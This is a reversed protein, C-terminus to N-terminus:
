ISERYETFCWAIHKCLESDTDPSFLYVENETSIVTKVEKLQQKVDRTRCEMYKKLVSNNVEFFLVPKKNSTQNFSNSNIDIGVMNILFNRNEYQNEAIYCCLWQFLKEPSSDDLENHDKLCIYNVLYTDRISNCEEASNWPNLCVKLFTPEEEEEETSIAKQSQMNLSTMFDTLISCITDIKGSSSDISIMKESKRFYELFPKVANGYLTLRKETRSYDAEDTHTNSGSSKNKKSNSNESHSPKKVLPKDMNIAFSVPYKAELKSLEEGTNKLLGDLKLLVKLNPLVDVLYFGKPRKDLQKIIEQMVWDLCVLEPQDKLLRKVAASCDLSDQQDDLNKMLRQLIIREANILTFGFTCMLENVIAGKKSGPGGFIFILKPDAAILSVEKGYHIKVKGKDRGGHIVTCDDEVAATRRSKSRRLNSLGCGM